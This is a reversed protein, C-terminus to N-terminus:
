NFSVTILVSLDQNPRWFFEAIQDRLTYIQIGIDKNVTNESMKDIASATENKNNSSKCALQPALVSGAAMVGATKIFKRRSNM